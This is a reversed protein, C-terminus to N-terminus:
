PSFFKELVSQRKKNLNESNLNLLNNENNFNSHNKENDSDNNSSEGDIKQKIKM